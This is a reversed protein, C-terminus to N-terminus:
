FVSVIHEESVYVDIRFIFAMHEELVITDMLRIIVLYAFMYVSFDYLVRPMLVSNAHIGTSSLVEMRFITAVHEESVSIDV